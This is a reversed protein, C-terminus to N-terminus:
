EERWEKYKREQEFPLRNDTRVEDIREPEIRRYKEEDEGTEHFGHERLQDFDDAIVNARTGRDTRAIRQMRGSERM